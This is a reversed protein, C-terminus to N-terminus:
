QNGANYADLVESKRFLKRRILYKEKTQEWGTLEQPFNEDLGLDWTQEVYIQDQPLPKFDGQLVFDGIELEVEELKTARLAPDGYLDSWIVYEGKAVNLLGGQVVTFTETELVKGSEDSVTVTHPGPALEIKMSESAPMSYILNDVQVKLPQTGSNDLEVNEKDCSKFSMSSSLLVAALFFLRM